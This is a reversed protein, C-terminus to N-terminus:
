LLRRRGHERMATEAAAIDSETIEWVKKDKLM